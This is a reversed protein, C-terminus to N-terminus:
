SSARGQSVAMTQQINAGESSVFLHRDVQTGASIYNFVVGPDIGPASPSTAYTTTADELSVERPDQEVPREVTDQRVDIPALTMDYLADGLAAFRM